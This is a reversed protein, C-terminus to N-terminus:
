LQPWNSPMLISEPMIEEPVPLTDKMGKEVASLNQQLQHANEVGVIVKDIFKKQLVFNLLAGPLSIPLSQLKTLVPKVKEFFNPLSGPATFFLGQLFASRTHIECGNKKLSKMWSEFRNDLYNFPVQIIDPVFGKNLLEDLEEPRNLSFGIKKVLGKVQLNKLEEWQMPNSIIDMPRHALYGHLVSVSLDALTKLLQKEILEGAVPAMYKSVIEFNDLKNEGLVAEANGYAAATDIMNIGNAAAVSLIQKVEATTTKGTTNSIGYAIGFQVTGLGLKSKLQMFLILRLM